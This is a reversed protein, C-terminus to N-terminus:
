APIHSEFTIYNSMVGYLIDEQDNLITEITRSIYRLEEDSLHNDLVGLITSLNKINDIRKAIFAEKTLCHDDLKEKTYSHVRCTM